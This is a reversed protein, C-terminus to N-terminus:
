NCSEQNRASMTAFCLAQFFCCCATVKVGTLFVFWFKNAWQMTRMSTRENAIVSPYFGHFIKESGALSCFGLLKTPYNAKSQCKNIFGSRISPLIGNKRFTQNM